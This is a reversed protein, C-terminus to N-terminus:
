SITTGATSMGRVIKSIREYEKRYETDTNIKRNGYDDKMFQMAQVDAETYSQGTTGDSINMGKELIKGFLAEGVEISRATSFMEEFGAMMDEPLNASGLARLDDIRKQPNSGLEKLESERREGDLVSEAIKIQAYLDVIGDFGDQNMENNKAFDMAQEVLPDDADLSFGKEKAMDSVRLEYKDPAGTFAGFKKELDGQAKAQAGVNKYKKDNFGEPKDGTGEVGEAWYWKDAPTDIPDVPPDVPDVPTDIPDVPDVVVPDVIPDPM